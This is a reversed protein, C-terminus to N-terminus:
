GFRNPLTPDAGHEALVRMLPADGNKAAVYFATAGNFTLLHRGLTLGPPNRAMGAVPSFRMEEWDIRVNPEAGAELLQRALTISTVTGVPTPPADAEAGVAANGTAGPERLWALIHLPSGREDPLNPDAGGAPLVSAVEYHANLIAVNLASTGDPAVADVDAGHGILAEVAALRAERVAFLLATFGASSAADVDAGHEVLLDITQTNGAGAAWMLATQGRFSEVANPDAGRELLVRVAEPRG